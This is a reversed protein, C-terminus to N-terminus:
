IELQELAHLVCSAAFIGLDCFRLCLSISDSSSKGQGSELFSTSKSKFKGPFKANLFPLSKQHNKKRTEAEWSVFRSFEVFFRPFKPAFNLAFIQFNPSSENQLKESRLFIVGNSIASQWRFRFMIAALGQFTSTTSIAVSIAVIRVVTKQLNTM